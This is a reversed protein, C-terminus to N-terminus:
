ATTPPTKPAPMAEAPKATTLQGVIPATAMLQTMEGTMPPSSAATKRTIMRAVMVVRRSLIVEARTQTGTKTATIAPTKAMYRAVLPRLRTQFGPQPM